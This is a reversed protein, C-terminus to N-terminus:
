FPSDALASKDGGAIRALCGDLVAGDEPSPAAVTMCLM